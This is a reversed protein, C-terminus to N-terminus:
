AEGTLVPMTERAYGEAIPPSLFRWSESPHKQAIQTPPVGHVRKFDRSFHSLQKYALDFAVEKVRDGRAVRKYAENLRLQRLWESVTAGYHARFHRQLTRVSVGCIAALAAPRFAAEQALDEWTRGGFTQM